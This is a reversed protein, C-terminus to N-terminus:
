VSNKIQKKERPFLIKHLDEIVSWEESKIELKQIKKLKSKDLSKIESHNATLMKVFDKLKIFRDIMLFTSNWRVHFDFVFSYNNKLKKLRVAEDIKDNVFSGIVNSKRIFKVTDRVKSLVLQINNLFKEDDNSLIKDDDIDVSLEDCNEEDDKEDESDQNDIEEENIEDSTVEDNTDFETESIDGVIDSQDSEDCDINLPDSSVNESQSAIKPRKFKIISKLILNLNHAYCSMREGFSYKTAAVIDAANDTTISVIKDEIHLVVLENAIWKNLRSSFHRGYFKRFSIVMSVYKMQSDM